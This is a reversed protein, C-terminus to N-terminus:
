LALPLSFSFPLRSRFFIFKLVIHKMCGNLHENTRTHFSEKEYQDNKRVTFSQSQTYFMRLATGGVPLAQMGCVSLDTEVAQYILSNEEISKNRPFHYADLEGGACAFKIRYAQVPDGLKEDQGWLSPTTMEQTQQKNWGLEWVIVAVDEIGARVINVATAELSAGFEAALERITEIRMGCDCLQPIFEQHPMLLEAAAADCLFEEERKEDWRMTQTDHHPLSFGSFNPMLIHGIEHCVSFNKRPTADAANVQILYEFDDNWLPILRGADDMTVEEIKADQWSALQNLNRAPHSLRCTQTLDSALKIAGAVPDSLGTAECVSKATESTWKKPNAM